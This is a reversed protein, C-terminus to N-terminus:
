VSTKWDNEIKLSNKKANEFVNNLVQMGTTNIMVKLRQFIKKENELVYSLVQMRVKLCM